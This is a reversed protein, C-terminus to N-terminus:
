GAGELAARIAQRPNDQISIGVARDKREAMHHEVVVWAVDADDGGAMPIAQTTLTWYNGAIADLMACDDRLLENEARLRTIETEYAQASHALHRWYSGIEDKRREIWNSLNLIVESM